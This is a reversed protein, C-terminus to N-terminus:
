VGCEEPRLVQGPRHRPLPSLRPGPRGFPGDLMEVSMALAQAQADELAVTRVKGVVFQEFEQEAGENWADVHFRDGLIKQVLEARHGCRECGRRFPQHFNLAHTFRGRGIDAGGVQQQLVRCAIVHFVTEL